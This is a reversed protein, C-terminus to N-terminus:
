PTVTRESLVYAVSVRAQNFGPAGRGYAVVRRYDVALRVGQISEPRHFDVGGGVQAAFHASASSGEEVGSGRWYSGILTSVFPLVRRQPAGRRLRFRPGVLLSADFCNPTDRLQCEPADRITAGFDGEFVFDLPWENNIFSLGLLFIAPTGRSIHDDVVGGGVEFENPLCLVFSCYQTQALAPTATSLLVMVFFVYRWASVWRRFERYSQGRSSSGVCVRQHPTSMLSHTRERRGTIAWTM